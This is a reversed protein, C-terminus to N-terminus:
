LKPHSTRAGSYEAYHRYIKIQILCQSLNFSVFSVFSFCMKYVKLEQQCLVSIVSLCRVFFFNGLDFFKATHEQQRFVMDTVEALCCCYISFNGYLVRFIPDSLNTPSNRDSMASSVMGDADKLCIM